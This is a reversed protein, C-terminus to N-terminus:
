AAGHFIKKQLAEVADPSVEAHWRQWNDELFAGFTRARTLLEGDDTGAEIRAVLGRAATQMSELCERHAQLLEPSPGGKIEMIM